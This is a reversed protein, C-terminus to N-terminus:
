TWSSAAKKNEDKKKSRNDSRHGERNYPSVRYGQSNNLLDNQSKDERLANIQGLVMIVM